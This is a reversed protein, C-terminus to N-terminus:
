PEIFGNFTMGKLEGNISQSVDECHGLTNELVSLSINLFSYMKLLNMESNYFNSSCISSILEIILKLTETNREKMKNVILHPIGSKIMESEYDFVIDNVLKLLNMKLESDGMKKYSADNVYVHLMDKFSRFYIHLYKKFVADRFQTKLDLTPIKSYVWFDILSFIEHNIIESERVEVKTTQKSNKSKKRKRRFFNLINKLSNLIQKEYGLKVVMILIFIVTAIIATTLGRETVIDVIFKFTDEFM